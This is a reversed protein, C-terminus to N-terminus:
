VSVCVFVHVRVCVRERECVNVSVCLVSESVCMCLVYVCLGVCFVCVCVVCVSMVFVYLMSERKSVCVSCVCFLITLLGECRGVFRNGVWLLVYVLVDSLVYFLVFCVVGCWTVAFVLLPCCECVYGWLCAPDGVYETVCVDPYCIFAVAGCGVQNFWGSVVAGWGLIFPSDVLQCAVCTIQRIHALSATAQVYTKLFV